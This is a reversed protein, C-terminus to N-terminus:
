DSWDAPEAGHFERLFATLNEVTEGFILGGTEKSAVTPDGYIGTTSRQIGWTSWFARKSGAFGDAPVNASSYTFVDGAHAASLDVDAGLHLMLSTEFEGGHICGGPPSKRYRAVAPAAMKAVDACAVYVGTTDAIERAVMELIAPHHGHGSITVIKRFGMEVLSQIIDYVLDAFVRTRVRITGAWHALEKGSYGSWVGPLVVCPLDQLQEACAQTVSEAIVLDTDLPLHSGHEELQGIPLLALPAGRIIEALRPSTLRGFSLL